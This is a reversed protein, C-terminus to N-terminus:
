RGDGFAGVVLAVRHLEHELEVAAVEDFGHQHQVGIPRRHADRGLGPAGHRAAEARGALSAEIPLEGDAFDNLLNDDCGTPSSRHITPDRIHHEHTGPM